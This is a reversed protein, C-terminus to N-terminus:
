IQEEDLTFFKEYEELIEEYSKNGMQEEQADQSSFAHWFM